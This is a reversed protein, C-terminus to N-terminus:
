VVCDDALFTRQIDSSRGFLMRQTYTNAVGNVTQTIPAGNVEFSINDVNWYGSQNNVPVHGLNKGNAKQRDIKGIEISPTRRGEANNPDFYVTFVDDTPRDKEDKNIRLWDLLTM